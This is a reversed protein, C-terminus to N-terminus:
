KIYATPLLKNRDIWEKSYQYFEEEELDAVSQNEGPLIVYKAGGKIKTNTLTNERKEWLSNRIRITNTINYINNLNSRNEEEIDQKRIITNTINKTDTQKKEIMEKEEQNVIIEENAILTEEQEYTHPKVLVEIVAKTGDVKVDTVREKKATKPNIQQLTYTGSKVAEIVAKGESNTQITQVDAINAKNELRFEYSLNGQKEMDYENTIKINSVEGTKVKVQKTMNVKNKELIIYKSEQSEQSRGQYGKVKMAEATLAIIFHQEPKEKPLFVRYRDKSSFSTKPIDQDKEVIKSQTVTQIEIKSKEIPLDCRIEYEQIHYSANETMNGVPNVEIQTGFSSSSCMDDFAERLIKQVAELINRGARNATTYLEIKRNGSWIYIAEQTALYAEEESDCRLEEVSVQPYGYKIISWCEQDEPLEEILVENPLNEKQDSKKYVIKEGSKIIEYSEEQNHYILPNIGTKEVRFVERQEARVQNPLILNLSLIGIIAIYIIKKINQKM